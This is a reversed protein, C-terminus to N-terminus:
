TSGRILRRTLGDGDGGFYKALIRHFVSGEPSVAAFLTASSRLKIDDPSGLIETASRGAVQLVAEACELLRKGLLPHALYARAEDLSKISYLRSTWSAGLGDFQPFVYWMWHSTKRGNRIEALAASYNQAQATVFRALDYPDGSDVDRHRDDMSCRGVIIRRGMAAKVISLM